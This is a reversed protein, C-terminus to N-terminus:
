GAATPSYDDSMDTDDSFEAGFKKKFNVVATENRVFELSGRREGQSLSM